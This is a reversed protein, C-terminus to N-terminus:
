PVVEWGVVIGTFRHPVLASNYLECSATSIRWRDGLDKM